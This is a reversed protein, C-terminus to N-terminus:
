PQASKHNKNVRWKDKFREPKLTRALSDSFFLECINASKLTRKYWLQMKNFFEQKEKDDFAKKRNLSPNHLIGNEFEQMAELLTARGLVRCVYLKVFQMFYKNDVLTKIEEKHLKVRIIKKGFARDVFLELFAKWDIEYNQARGIKQELKVIGVKQLRRLQEIVPPSKIGLSDAIKKPNKPGACLERFVRSTGINSLPDIRTM